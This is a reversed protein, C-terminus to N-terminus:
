SLVLHYQSLCRGKVIPSANTRQLTAALLLLWFYFFEM